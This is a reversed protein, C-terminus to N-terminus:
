SEFMTYQASYLTAIWWDISTVIVQIQYDVTATIDDPCVWEFTVNAWAIWVVSISWLETPAHTWAIVISPICSAIPLSFGMDGTFPANAVSFESFNEGMLQPAEPTVTFIITKEVIGYTTEIKATIIHEWIAPESISYELVNTTYLSSIFWACSVNSNTNLESAQWMTPLTEADLLMMWYSPDLTPCDVTIIGLWEELWVELDIRVTFTTPLSTEATITAPVTMVVPPPPPIFKEFSFNLTERDDWVFDFDSSIDWNELAPFQTTINWAGDDTIKKIQWFSSTTPRWVEAVWIYTTWPTSDDVAQQLDMGLETKM